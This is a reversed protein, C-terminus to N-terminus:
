RAPRPEFGLAQEMPWGRSCRWHITRALIGTLDSWETLSRTQNKFTLMVACSNRAVVYRTSSWELNGPAYNGLQNIRRLRDQGPPPLGLYDEVYQAFEEFRDFENRIGKAGAWRYDPSRPNNVAQQISTWRRYLWHRTKYQTKAM